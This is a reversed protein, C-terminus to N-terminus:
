PSPNSSSRSSLAMESMMRSWREEMSKFRDDSQQRLRSVEHEVRQQVEAELREQLVREQNERMHLVEEELLKIRKEAVDDSVAPLNRSTVSNQDQYLALGQSGLGYVRRKKEGGVVDFYLNNIDLEQVEQSDDSSSSIAAALVVEMKDNICKSKADVFSGDKRKHLKKFIDWSNPPRRLEIALKITHEVTSRSGGTHKSPGTGLGGTESCRNRTAIRSKDMWENSAWHTKWSRWIDELVFNPKVTGKRWIYMKKSYLTSAVKNWTREMISNETPNWQYSKLFEHWYFKRTSQSVDKWSYGTADQREKFTETITKSISHGNPVFKEAVVSIVLRASTSSCSTSGISVDPTSPTTPTCPGTPSGANSSPTDSMNGDPDNLIYPTEDECIDIEHMQSNDKQFTLDNLTHPKEVINPVDVISRAKIQCVALWDNQTRKVSPYTEFYVQSAQVAMIFPEYKNFTRRRNVDVLNYQPHVRTGHKPTPDFWSCKFLVIRKFPLAHYELQLIETLIGYYDIENASHSSGKICIGSNMTSKNSGYEETHFKYGNVVYGNFPQVKHLPGEALDKMFQNTIGSSPDRAYQNFWSAFETELKADIESDQICPQIQRLTDEFIKIYPKVEDCNLLIYTRAAHYERDDLRRIKKKGFGRGVHKFISLMEPHDEGVGGDDTNRPVKRYRTLIDSKFYHTCLTSSEKVLCANRICGEVRNKNKIDYKVGHLKRECPYMWREQVPGALRAEYALHIPLHEMSDWFSPPFIRELKTLILPINRELQRMHEETISTSTLDKFFLSLETLPEWVNRPLLDRFAIPILRQMFVHCDHSKMGFLKLKNMDVCRGM